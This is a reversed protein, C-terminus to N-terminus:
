LLCTGFPASMVQHELQIQPELTPARFDVFIGVTRVVAAAFLRNISSEPVKTVTRNDKNLNLPHPVFSSASSRYGRAPSVITFADAHQLTL